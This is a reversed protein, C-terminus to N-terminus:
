MELERAMSAALVEQDPQMLKEARAILDSALIGYAAACKQIVAFSPENIGLEVQSLYGLTIGIRECGERLKLKRDKRLSRLVVGIALNLTTPESM